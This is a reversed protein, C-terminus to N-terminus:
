AIFGQFNGEKALSIRGGGLRRWSRFLGPQVSYLGGSHQINQCKEALQQCEPATRSGSVRLPVHRRTVTLHDLTSTRRHGPRPILGDCDERASGLRIKSALLYTISRPTFTSFSASSASATEPEKDRAPTRHRSGLIRCLFGVDDHQHGIVGSPVVKTGRSSELVVHRLGPSRAVLIPISIPSAINARGTRREHHM